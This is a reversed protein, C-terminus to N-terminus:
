YGLNIRYILICFFVEFSNQCTHIHLCSSSSQLFIHSLLGSEIPNNITPIFLTVSKRVSFIGCFLNFYHRDNIFYNNWIHKILSFVFIFWSFNSEYEQLSYIQLPQVLSYSCTHWKEWVLICDWLYNLCKSFCNGSFM